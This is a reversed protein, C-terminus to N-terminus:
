ALKMIVTKVQTYTHLAEFGKERGYGSQKYGGFPTEVGGSPYENVFVQGAELRAALRHARALDRTWIGACLGYATDNAIQVAEDETTFPMLVLLPGFCEERAIGMENKGVYVMPTVYWGGSAQPSSVPVLPIAGEALATESMRHIKEYQARTTMPGLGGPVADLSLGKVKEGLAAAFRDFITAQVLCRSGAICIQGSNVTFAAIAGAVARDFDADEFVINPSKGGLELTLPLIRDGAVKGIEKAARVSGTFSLKRVRTDEVLPMGTEQGTGTVVNVIGRPLQARETALSILRLLSVSTFESPKIVVVNGAALAPAIGRAAQNLPGNWPTIVGVVGFPERLTYIHYGAGASITEGQLAPALGGYLEFYQAAIDVEAKATPIPKGTEASEIEVFENFNERILKGVQLLIRGREVPKLVRWSPLAETAADVALSVDHRDGRAIQFSPEATRPDYESLYTNSRPPVFSGGIFHGWKEGALHNAQKGPHPAEAGAPRRDGTLTRDMSPVM